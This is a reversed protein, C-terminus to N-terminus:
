VKTGYHMMHFQFKPSPHITVYKFLKQVNHIDTLVLMEICKIFRRLVSAASYMDVM